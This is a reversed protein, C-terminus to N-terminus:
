WAADGAPSSSRPLLATRRASRFSISRSSRDLAQADIVGITDALPVGEDLRLGLM